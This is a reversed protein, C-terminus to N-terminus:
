TFLINRFSARLYRDDIKRSLIYMLLPDVDLVRGLTWLKEAQVRESLSHDDTELQSLYPASITWPSLSHAIEEVHRLKLELGQRRTRLFHSFSCPECERLAFSPILDVLEPITRSHAFLVLPSIKLAVGLAWLKDISVAEARMEEEVKNELRSIYIASKIPFPVFPRETLRATERIGLKLEERRQRLLSAFEMFEGNELVVFFNCFILRCNHVICFLVYCIDFFATVGL